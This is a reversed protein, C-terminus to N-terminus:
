SLRLSEAVKQDSYSRWDDMRVYSLIEMTTITMKIKMVIMMMSMMAVTLMLMMNM